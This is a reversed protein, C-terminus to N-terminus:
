RSPRFRDGGRPVGHYMPVDGPRGGRGGGGGGNRRRRGGGGGGGGGARRGFGRGGGGGGGPPGFGRGMERRRERERHPPRIGLFIEPGRDVLADGDEFYYRRYEKAAGSLHGDDYYKSKAQAIADLRRHALDRSVPKFVVPPYTRTETMDNEPARQFGPPGRRDFSPYVDAAPGTPISPRRADGRPSMSRQRNPHQQREAGDILEAEVTGDPSTTYGVEWRSSSVRGGGNGEEQSVWDQFRDPPFYDVWLPKRNTEDPWVRDHLAARARSAAATNRFVVFAHTKITDLFFNVILSDELAAGSPTALELLHDQVEQPRLPRMFNKIYLANTAPHISPAIDRDMEDTYDAENPHTAPPSADHMSENDGSGGKAPADTDHMIADDDAEAGPQAEREPDNAQEENARAVSAAKPPPSASRQHRTQYDQRIETPAPTVSTGVSTPPIPSQEPAQQPLAPLAEGSPQAPGVDEPTAVDLTDSQSPIVADEQGGNADPQQEDDQAAPTTSTAGTAAGSNLADDLRAVLEAKLGTQPLGLRKLESRLDAVKLKSSDAAM